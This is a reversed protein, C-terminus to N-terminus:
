VCSCVGHEIILGADLASDASGSEWWILPAVAEGCQDAGRWIRVVPLDDFTPIGECSSLFYIGAFDAVDIGHATM